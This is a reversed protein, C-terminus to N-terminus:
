RLQLDLSCLRGEERPALLNQYGAVMAWGMVLSPASTHREPNSPAGSAHELSPASPPPTAPLELTAPEPWPPLPWAPVVLAPLALTPPLVAALPVALPPVPPELLTAPLPVV